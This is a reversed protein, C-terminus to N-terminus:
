VGADLFPHLKALTKTSAAGLLRARALARAPAEVLDAADDMMTELLVWFRSARSKQIAGKDGAILATCSSLVADSIDLRTPDHKFKAKGDLIDAPDPLDTKACYALFETAAGTGIFASVLADREAAKLGHVMASALARCANEWSRPSPWAKSAEPSNVEPVKLLLDIRRKVFGAVLGRAKAWPAPWAALVRAEEAAADLPAKDDGIKTDVEGLLWESWEAATPAEWEIHGLRNAVPMALDWGGAAMATPNATALVRVGAPLYNGGIMREQILGLLPPQLAPPASSIEDIIILGREKMKLSWEPIPNTLVTRGGVEVPVPIVGFAGEGREGPSLVEVALGASQGVAQATQTKAVGPPGSFLLPLGWRGRSIPTFLAAHIIQKKDM